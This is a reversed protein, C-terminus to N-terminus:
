PIQVVVSGEEVSPPSGLESAHQRIWERAVRVSEDTGAKDQCVTVAMGGEASEVLSYSVLGPVSRIVAEVEAKRQELLNFLDKAGAGSYTRVVAYMHNELLGRQQVTLVEAIDLRSGSRRQSRKCLNAYPSACLNGITESLSRTSLPTFGASM